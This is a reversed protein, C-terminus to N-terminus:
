TALVLVVRHSVLLALEKLTVASSDVLSRLALSCFCFYFTLKSERVFPVSYRVSQNPCSNPALACQTGSPAFAPSNCGPSTGILSQITVRFTYWRVSLVDIRSVSLLRTRPSRSRRKALRTQSFYSANSLPDFRQVFSIRRVLVVVVSPPM